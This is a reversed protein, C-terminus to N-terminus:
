SQDRMKRITHRDVGAQRALESESQGEDLAARVAATLREMEKQLAKRAAALRLGSEHVALLSAPYDPVYVQVDYRGLREMDRATAHAQELTAAYAVEYHDPAITASIAYRRPGRAAIAADREATTNM